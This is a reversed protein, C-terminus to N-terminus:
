NVENTQIVHQSVSLTVVKNFGFVTITGAEEDIVVGDVTDYHYGDHDLKRYFFGLCGVSVKYDMGRKLELATLSKM